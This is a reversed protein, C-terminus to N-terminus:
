ASRRFGAHSGTLGPIGQLGSHLLRRLETSLLSDLNERAAKLAEKEEEYQFIGRRLSEDIEEKAAEAKPPFKTPDRELVAIRYLLEWRKLTMLPQEGQPTSSSIEARRLNDGWDHGNVLLVSAVALVFVKTPSLFDCM